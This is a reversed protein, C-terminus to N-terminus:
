LARGEYKIIFFSNEQLEVIRASTGNLDYSLLEVVDGANLNFEDSCKYACDGPGRQESADPAYRMTIAGNVRVVTVIDPTGSGAVRAGIVTYKVGYRGTINVVVSTNSARTFYRSDEYDTTSLPVPQPTNQAMDFGADAVSARYKAIFDRHPATYDGLGDTAEVVCRDENGNRENAPLTELSSYKIRVDAKASADNIECTYVLAPDQTAPLDVVADAQVEFAGAGAEILVPVFASGAAIPAQAANCTVGLIRLTRSGAVAQSKVRVLGAQGSTWAGFGEVDLRMGSLDVDAGVPVSDVTVPYKKGGPIDSFAVIRGANGKSAVRVFFGAGTCRIGNTDGAGGDMNGTFECDAGILLAGDEVLVGDVDGGAGPGGRTIRCRWTTCAAFSAGLVWLAPRGDNNNITLDAIAAQGTGTVKVQGTIATEQDGQLVIANSFTSPTTVLELDAVYPTQAKRLYIKVASGPNNAIFDNAYAVAAEPTAWPPFEAFHDGVRADTATPADKDVTITAGTTLDLAPGGSAPNGSGGGNPSGGIPFFTM